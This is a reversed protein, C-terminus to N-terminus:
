RSLFLDPVKLIKKSMQSRNFIHRNQLVGVGSHGACVVPLSIVSVIVIKLIYDTTSIDQEIYVAGATNMAYERAHDSFFDGPSRNLDKEVVFWIGDEIHRNVFEEIVFVPRYGIWQHKM